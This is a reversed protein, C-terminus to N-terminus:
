MEFDLRHSICLVLDRQKRKMTVKILIQCLFLEGDQCIFPRTEACKQDAWTNINSLTQLVCDGSGNPEGVSWRRFPSRSNDSWRFFDKFLGIFVLAGQPVLAKILQNEDPNRVSVLDTHQQRCFTQADRWRKKQSVFVYRQLVNEKGTIGYSLINVVAFSPWQFDVLNFLYPKFKPQSVIIYCM